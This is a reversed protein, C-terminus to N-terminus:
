ITSNIEIHTLELHNNFFLKWKDLIQTDLKSKSKAIDYQITLYKLSDFKFDVTSYLENNKHNIYQINLHTVKSFTNALLNNLITLKNNIEPYATPNYIDIYLQYKNNEILLSIAYINEKYCSIKNIISLNDTNCAIEKYHPLFGSVFNSCSCYEQGNTKIALFLYISIM